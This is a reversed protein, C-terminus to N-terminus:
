SVYNAFRTTSLRRKQIHQLEAVRMSDNGGGCFVRAQSWLLCQASLRCGFTRETTATCFVPSATRWQGGRAAPYLKWIARPGGGLRQGRRHVVRIQLKVGMNRRSNSKRDGGPQSPGCCRHTRVNPVQELATRHRSPCRTAGGAAHKTRPM